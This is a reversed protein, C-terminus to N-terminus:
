KGQQEALKRICDRLTSAPVFTNWEKCSKVYAWKCKSGHRTISHWDVKGSELLDLLETDSVAVGKAPGTRRPLASEM